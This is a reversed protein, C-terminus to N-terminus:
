CKIKVKAVKIICNNLEWNKKHVTVKFQLQFELHFHDDITAGRFMCFLVSFVKKSKSSRAM